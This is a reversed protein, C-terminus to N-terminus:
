IYSIILEMNGRLQYTGYNFPLLFSDGKKVNISDVTGSGSIVTVNKFKKDQIFSQEGHLIVKEVTYQDCHILEEIQYQETEKVKKGVEINVHPCNIVDISKEIHLERPKGNELRGYDYLRYTIDSNQQTELILTGKKIAHITGPEIQFFDGKKIAQVKILKDWQDSYVMDRLEQKDKANHGIIIEGDKECDLVYWCETKGLAWNENRRAYEADPHVQISLDEKADIIKILLPFVDGEAYGFEEKHNEWLWSLTYGHYIGNKITCDGNQHASIAWCEGTHNNPIHFGFETELKNGGWIMSKLVPELFLIKKM